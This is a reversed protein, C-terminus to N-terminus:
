AQDLPDTKLLKGGAMQLGIQEPRGVLGMSKGLVARAQDALKSEETKPTSTDKVSKSEEEARARFEFEEDESIPITM